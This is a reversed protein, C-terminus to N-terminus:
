IAVVDALKFVRPFPKRSGTIGDTAVVTMVAEAETGLRLLHELTLTGGQARRREADPLRDLAEPGLRDLYLIPIQDRSRQKGSRVARDKNGPLYALDSMATPIKIRNWIILDDDRPGYLDLIRVVFDVRVDVATRRSANWFAPRYQSGGDHGTRRYVLPAIRMRPPALYFQVVCWAIISSVVGLGIGAALSATLDM